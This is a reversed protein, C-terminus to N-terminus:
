IYQRLKIIFQNVDIVYNLIEYHCKSLYNSNSCDFLNDKLNNSQLSYYIEDLNYFFHPNNLIFNKIKNKINNNNDNKIFLEYFEKKNVDSMKIPTIYLLQELPKMDLKKNIMKSDLKLNTFYKIISDFLPSKTYPYYWTEDIINTDRKFYYQHVWKFGNLYQYVIDQQNNNNFYKKYYYSKNINKTIVINNYFQNIPNFLHYYKDLRNEMLYNEKERPTLDKMNIIHKKLKSEYEIKRLIEYNTQNTKLNINIQSNLPMKTKLIEKIMKILKIKDYLYFELSGYKTNKFNLQTPDIYFLINNYFNYFQEGFKKSNLNIKSIDIHELKKLDIIFNIQNAYNYNIYINQFSNRYLLRDEHKSLKELFKYFNKTIIDRNKKLLYGNDILNILYIDILFLFDNNTQIAECKPIFDNGFITFIFILDVILEEINIEKIEIRELCYNLITTKLLEINIISLTNNNIKGSEYKIVNILNSKNSLMSLLIVDSDPSFFLIKNKTEIKNILDLIKMEGEGKVEYDSITIKNIKNFIKYDKLELILDEKKILKNESINKLNNLYKVMKEMFVTGPSINNKSWNFPLSYKELLKNIFDGIFRRKKQEMIKSFTPVGDIAIYIEKIEEIKVLKLLNLLFINVEKIIMEDIDSLLNDSSKNKNLNNILNSSCNHIISNFDILLYDCELIDQSNNEFEITSIINFTRNITSFFKEIGM